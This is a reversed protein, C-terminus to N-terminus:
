EESTEDGVVQQGRPQEDEIGDVMFNHSDLADYVLLSPFSVDQAIVRSNPLFDASLDDSRSDPM